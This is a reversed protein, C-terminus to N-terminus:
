PAKRVAPTLQLSVVRASMPFWRRSDNLFACGFGNPVFTVCLHLRAYCACVSEFPGHQGLFWVKPEGLIAFVDQASMGERILSSLVMGTVTGGQAAVTRGFDQCEQPFQHQLACALFAVAFM